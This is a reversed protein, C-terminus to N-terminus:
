NKIKKNMAVFMMMTTYPFIFLMPVVFVQLPFWFFISLFIKEFYEETSNTLQVVAKTNEFINEDNTVQLFPMMFYKAAFKIFFFVGSVILALTALIALSFLIKRNENATQMKICSYIFLVLGPALFIAGWFVIRLWMALEFLISRFILRISRYYYFVTSIKASDDKSLSYFWRLIGYNLPISFLYLLSSFIQVVLFPIARNFWKIAAFINVIGMPVYNFIASSDNTLFFSIVGLLAGLIMFFIKLGVIATARSWNNSLRKLSEKKLDKTNVAEDISENASSSYGAAGVKVSSEM